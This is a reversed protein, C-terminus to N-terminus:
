GSAATAPVVCRLVLTPRFLAVDQEAPPSLSARTAQAPVTLSANMYGTPGHPLAGRGAATLTAATQGGRAACQQALKAAADLFSGPLVALGSSVDADPALVEIVGDIGLESSAVIVSDGDAILNEAVITINGGNGGFANAEIRSNQLIVFEPDISVNGGNGAGGAVSTTIAADVLQLIQVAELTISGGDSQTTSTGITSNSSFISEGAKITINGARGTGTSLAVIVANGTLTLTRDANLFITGGDGPGETETTIVGGNSLAIASANVRVVGGFGSGLANGAIVGGNDITVDQATITIGGANGTAAVQSQNTIGTIESTLPAEGVISLRVASVTVDGADGSSFTSASIEGGDLIQIGDALVTVAGAKGTSGQGATSLIGTPFDSGLGNILLETTQVTVIGADGAAFTSSSIEAGDLVQLEDATVSVDGAAGSSGSNAVSSIGTFAADNSGIIVIKGADVVVSGGNGGASTGSTIDGGPRITLEGATVAITGANGTSAARNTVGTFQGSALADITMRDANIVVSGGRGNAFTSVSIEGGSLIELEGAAVTVTGADGTSIQEATSSIGTFIQAGLGNITLRGADITVSGANGNAFTSSSINGGSLIEAAGATIRVNGAAGTGAARSQNVIRTPSTAGSGDVVLRDAVVTVDGADGDASAAAIIEGGTVIQLTGATVTIDGGRGGAVSNSTIQTNNELVVDAGNITINSAKGAAFTNARILSGTFRAEGRARIDIEGSELAGFTDTVIVTTDAIIQGAEIRVSGGGGGRTSLFAFDSLSISGLRDFSAPAISSGAIEVRGPSAVSMLDITGDPVSVFGFAGGTISIDGGALAFTTGPRMDLESEQIAISGPNDSLFGFAEPAAVSLVTNTPDTASFRGGDPFEIQDATSLHFSGDVDLFANPGFVVGSPNIFFFDANPIASGLFGDITSPSGGTVRSIVTDIDAAGTFVAGEGTNINFTAFSQFLNGGARAGLAEDIVFGPGVLTVAPGVSGDTVIQADAPQSSICFLSFLVPLALAWHLRFCGAFGSVATFHAM